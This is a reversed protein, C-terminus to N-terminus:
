VLRDVPQIQTELFLPRDDIAELRIERASIEPLWLSNEEMDMVSQILDNEAGRSFHEEWSDKQRREQVNMENM